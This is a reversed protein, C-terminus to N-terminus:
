RLQMKNLNSECAQDQLNFFSRKISNPIVNFGHIKKWVPVVHYYIDFDILIYINVIMDYGYQFLKM